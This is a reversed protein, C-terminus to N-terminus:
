IYSYTREFSANFLSKHQGLRCCCENKWVQCVALKEALWQVYLWLCKQKSLTSKINYIAWSWLAMKSRLLALILFHTSMHELQDFVVRWVFFWTELEFFPLKLKKIELRLKSFWHCNQMFILMSLPFKAVKYWLLIVPQCFYPM